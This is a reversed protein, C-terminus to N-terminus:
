LHSSGLGKDSPINFFQSVLINKRQTGAFIYQGSVALSLVSGEHEIRQLQVPGADLETTPVAYDSCHSAPPHLSEEMSPTSSRTLSEIRRNIYRAMPTEPLFM